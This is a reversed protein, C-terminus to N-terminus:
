GWRTVLASTCVILSTVSLATRDSQLQHRMSEQVVQATLRYLHHRSTAESKMERLFGVLASVLPRLIGKCVIMERPAKKPLVHDPGWM